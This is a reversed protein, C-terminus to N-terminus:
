CSFRTEDSTDTVVRGDLQTGLVKTRYTYTGVGDCDWSIEKTGDGNRKGSNEVDWGWARLREIRVTLTGGGCGSAGGKGFVHTSNHTPTYATLTCSLPTVNSDPTAAHASPALLAVAAAGTLAAYSLRRYVSLAGKNDLNTRVPWRYRIVTTLNSSLGYEALAVFERSSQM